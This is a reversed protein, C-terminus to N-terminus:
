SLRVNWEVVMSAVTEGSTDTLDVAVDFIARKSETLQAMIAEPAITTQAIATITGRASRVYAIRANSAVPRAVLLVPAIAGAMAAGSATEGLTFLAGAHQTKLHNISVDSQELTAEARGSAVDTIVVGAHSAFPINSGMQAKIIDFMDTKEEAM